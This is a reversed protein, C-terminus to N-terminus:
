YLNFWDKFKTTQFQCNQEFIAFSSTGLLKFGVTLFIM